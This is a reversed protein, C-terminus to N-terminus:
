RPECRSLPESPPDMKSGFKCGLPIEEASDASSASSAHSPVGWEAIIVPRVCSLCKIAAGILSTSGPINFTNKEIRFARHIVNSSVVPPQTLVRNSM